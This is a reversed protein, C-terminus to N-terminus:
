TAVNKRSEASYGNSDFCYVFRYALSLFVFIFLSINPQYCFMCSPKEDSYSSKGPRPMTHHTLFCISSDITQITVGTFTFKIPPLWTSKKRVNRLWDYSVCMLKSARKREKRRKRLWYYKWVDWWHTIKINSWRMLITSM